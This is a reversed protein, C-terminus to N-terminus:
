RKKKNNIMAKQQERQMKELREMFGTKKKGGGGKSNAKNNRKANLEALLKKEDITARFIYTQAISLLTSLFYYYTLGSAYSNFMFMFMLPMLYMMWKMMGAGPQDPTGMTANNLKTYVLTTATMLLTFLSVHNGFGFPITFPLTFISDYASLDSAWLFSEQRLEIAAPFFSFMAILLPMQLLMPLCGSMPSVGVKGYLEMTAKQREAPKDAPIKKNIEDIEPKLVRMKASSLYSKYTMPFIVLKIVITMLLIILGFNSIFKSFLNFMPIIAYMNVWGFIGWGLPVLKRFLFKEDSPLGKDYASLIKHQNPGLFIHFNTPRSGSPDFAVTLESSCVKLLKSNESQPQSSLNGYTFNDDAILITSFFQDKCAVWKITNTLRKSDAKSESMKEVDNDAAFKYFMATYRDEFKRGREQQRIASVWHMDLTNTGSPMINALGKAQLAFSIMYNDKPITYVFDLYAKDNTNLRLTFITNGQADTKPEGLKSFYMDATRIVRNNNTALAFDVISEDGDFLLLPLSDHTRYKKLEASYIRGGKNTFTLRLLDSEVVYFQEEGFASVSFAGAQDTLRLSDNNVEITDLVLQQTAIREAEAQHNAQQVAMISDRYHQQRAIEDKSPRGFWMFGVMVAGMLLFGIITNKNM